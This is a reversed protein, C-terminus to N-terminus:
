YYHHYFLQYIIKLISYGDNIKVRGYNDLMVNFM